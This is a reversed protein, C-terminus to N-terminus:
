SATTSRKRAATSGLTPEPTPGPSASAATLTSIAGTIQLQGLLETSLSWTTFGFYTPGRSLAWLASIGARAPAGDPQAFLTDLADRWREICLLTAEPDPEAGIVQCWAAVYPLARALDARQCVPRLMVSDPFRPLALSLGQQQPGWPLGFREPPQALLWTWLVRRALLGRYETETLRNEHLWPTLSDSAKASSIAAEVPAREQAPIEIQTGRAWERVFFQAGCWWSLARRRATDELLRDIVTQGDLSHQPNSSFQRRLLRFRDHYCSTNPGHSPSSGNTPLRGATADPGPKQQAVQQLVQTADRRKWDIAHDRYFRRLRVQEEPDLAGFAPTNWLADLTRQWFPMAKMAAILTDAQRSDLIEREVASRLNFRINVLPESLPRYDMESPAHLLAVEDDGDIEDSHYAEFIRGVGRMGLSHLEAARLAGMSSAGLVRIGSHMAYWLERQWVPAHGHFVGDILVITQM